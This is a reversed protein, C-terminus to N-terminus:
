KRSCSTSADEKSLMKVADVCAKIFAKTQISPRKTNDVTFGYYTIEEVGLSKCIKFLKLGPDLGEEYGNEKNLGNNVAWRRIVM